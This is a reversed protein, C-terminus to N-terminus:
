KGNLENLVFCLERIDKRIDHEFTFNNEIHVLVEQNKPATVSVTFINELITFKTPIDNIYITGTLNDTIEGPYYGVIVVLGSDQTRIKFNSITSVWGDSYYGSIKEASIIDNGINWIYASFPDTGPPLNELIHADNLRFDSRFFKGDYYESEFVGSLYTGDDIRVPRKSSQLVLSKLSLVSIINHLRLVFYRDDELYCNVQDFDIKENVINSNIGKFHVYQTWYGDHIALANRTSYFDEATVTKNKMVLAAQTDFFDEIMVLRDFNRGQETSFVINMSQVPICFLVIITCILVFVWKKQFYKMLKWLLFCITFMTSYMMFYTVPLAIFDNENVIGSYMEALSNPIAPLITILIGVLVIFFISKKKTIVINESSKNELLIRLICFFSTTFLLFWWFPLASLVDRMLIIINKISSYQGRYIKYLYLYKQNTFFYGPMSSKVLQYIIDFSSKFSIFKLKNGSYHTPYIEHLIFYITLYIIVVVIIPIIKKIIGSLTRKEKSTLYFSIFFYLPTFMIFAEYFLLTIFLAVMSIILILASDRKQSYIYAIFSLFLFCIGFSLVAFTNPFTHEFTIPLYAFIIVPVFISFRTNGFLQKLFIGFLFLNSILCILRVFVIWQRSSHLFNVFLSFVWPIFSIVRGQNAFSRWSQVVLSKFGQMGMFRQRLEDNCMIGTRVFNSLIILIFVFCFFVFYKYEFLLRQIRKILEKTDFISQQFRFTNIITIRLAEIKKNRFLINYAREYFEREIGFPIYFFKPWTLFKWLGISAFISVLSIMWWYGWIEIPPTFSSIQSFSMVGFFYLILYSIKFALFHFFVIGLSNKGIFILTTKVYKPLKSFFFSILFVFIVGNLAALTDTTISGFRRSPYDVTVRHVKGFFWLITMSAILLAITVWPIAQIKDFIKSKRILIGIVFYFQGIFVLDLTFPFSIGKHVLWYGFILLLISFIFFWVTTKNKFLRLILRQLVNIWFLVILFWVAGLWYVYLNGKKFFEKVTNFFGIFPMSSIIEYWGLKYFSMDFFLLLFFVSILPLILTCFRNWITELISRRSLDSVYGSIFFFAAMHFQYIFMNFQGTAHGIVVAIIALARYIDVWDIRHIKQEM